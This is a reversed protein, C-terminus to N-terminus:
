RADEARRVEAQDRERVQEEREDARQVVGAERGGEDRLALPRALVRRREGPARGHGADHGAASTASAAGATATANAFGASTGDRAREGDREREAAEGGRREGHQRALEREAAAREGEDDGRGGLARDRDGGGHV